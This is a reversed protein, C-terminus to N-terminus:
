AVYAGRRRKGRIAHADRDHFYFGEGRWKRPACFIGLILATTARAVIVSFSPRASPFASIELANYTIYEINNTRWHSFFRTTSHQDVVRIIHMINVSGIYIVLARRPRYPDCMILHARSRTRCHANGPMYYLDLIDEYKRHILLPLFSPSNKAGLGRLLDRSELDRSAEPM